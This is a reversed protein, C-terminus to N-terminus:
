SGFPISLLVVGLTGNDLSGAAFISTLVDPELTLDVPGLVTAGGSAAVKVDYTGAPVDAAYTQAPNALGRIKLGAGKTRAKLDVAPAAATHQIVLRANGPALGTVKQTFKSITPAGNADLHAVIAATEAISLDVRATVALAGTCTGDSVRIEIEHPGTALAGAFVADGFVAGPLACGGDVSVDVPLTPDLGLDEGPIAHVVYVDAALAPATALGLLLILVAALLSSRRKRSALLRFM